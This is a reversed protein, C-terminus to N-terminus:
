LDLVVILLLFIKFLKIHILKCIYQQLSNYTIKESTQMDPDPNLESKFYEAFYSKTRFHKRIINFAITFLFSKFSLEEKL